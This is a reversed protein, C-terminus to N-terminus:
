RPLGGGNRIAAAIDRSLAALARSHAAVLEDFSSGAPERVLSHGSQPVGGISRLSWIAEITVSDGPASDFRQIDVLIRYDPGPMARDASTATRAGPLIKALNDAIVRPIASKLPQAWRAQEAITVRNPPVLLVLQPRDVIEPVTIPGVVISLAPADASAPQLPTDSTLTFFQAQPSTGCGATIAVLCVASWRVAAVSKM